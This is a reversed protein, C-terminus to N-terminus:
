QPVQRMTLDLFGNPLDVKASSTFIKGSVKDMLLTVKLNGPDDDTPTLVGKTQLVAFTKGEIVKDELYTGTGKYEFGESKESIEFSQSIEMDKNPMIRSILAVYVMVAPMEKFNIAKPTGNLNLDMSMSNLDGLPMKEGLIQMEAKKIKILFRAGDSTVEQTTQDIDIDIKIDGENEFDGLVRIEYAASEDKKFTHKFAVSENSFCATTIFYAAITTIM